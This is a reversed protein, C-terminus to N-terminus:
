LRALAPQDFHAVRTARGLLCPERFQYLLGRHARPIM